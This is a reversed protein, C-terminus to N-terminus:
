GWKISRLASHLHRLAEAVVINAETIRSRVVQLVVNNIEGPPVEIVQTDHKNNLVLVQM